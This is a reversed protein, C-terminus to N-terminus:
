TSPILGFNQCQVSCPLPAAAKNMCPSLVPTAAPSLTLYQRAQFEAAGTPELSLLTPLGVPLVNFVLLRHWDLTRQM